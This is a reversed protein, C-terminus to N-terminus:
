RIGLQQDLFGVVATVLRDAFAARNAPTDRVGTFNSEIQLGPLKATHRATSYGGEFYPDAAPSKTDPSPVSPTASGLRGGLSAPGRLLEAFTVSTFPMALRLSSSSSYSGADLQADIRSHFAVWAQGARAQFCM